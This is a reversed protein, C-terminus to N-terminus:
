IVNEVIDAKKFAKICSILKDIDQKTNYFWFSARVYGGPECTLKHQLKVCSV